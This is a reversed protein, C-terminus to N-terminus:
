QARVIKKDVVKLRSKLEGSVQDRLDLQVPGFESTFYLVLTLPSVRTHDSAKLFRLVVSEMVNKYYRDSVFLSDHVKRVPYAGSRNLLVPPETQEWFHRSGFLVANSYVQVSFTRLSEEQENVRIMEAQFIESLNCNTLTYLTMGTDRRNSSVKISDMVGSVSDKYTWWSGVMYECQLLGSDTIKNFVTTCPHGLQLNIPEEKAAEKKKCGFGIVILVLGFQIFKSFADPFFFKM